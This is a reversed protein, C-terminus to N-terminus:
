QPVWGLARLHSEDSGPNAELFAARAELRDVWPAAIGRGRAYAAISRLETPITTNWADMRDIMGEEFPQDFCAPDPAGTAMFNLRTRVCKECVGCNGPPPTFCVRLSRTLAPFRAVLEAKQTRIHGAGDHVIQMRGGSLLHDTAPNTGHRLDIGVYPQGSAILAYGFVASLGHFVGAFQAAHSYYYRQPMPRRPNPALLNSRVVILELGLEELAPRVRETVARLGATDRLRVDLGHILLVHTLPYSAAGLLRKGHRAATFASDLGGSYASIARQRLAAPTHVVQDATVEVPHYLKPMLDVWAEQYARANRVAEISLPGEVHLRDVGKLGMGLMLVSCLAGDLNEPPAFRRGVYHSRIPGGLVAGAGGGRVVVTQLVGGQRVTHDFGVRVVAM